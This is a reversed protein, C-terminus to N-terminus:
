SAADGAKRGKLIFLLQEFKAVTFRSGLREISVTGDDYFSGSVYPESMYFTGSRDGDKLRADVGTARMYDAVRALSRGRAAITALLERRKALPARSPEIVRRRIDKVLAAMPRECSMSASPLNWEPGRPLENYPVRADAPETAAVRVKDFGSARWTSNSFYLVLGDPMKIRMPDLSDTGAIVKGGLAKALDGLFAKMDLKRETRGYAVTTEIYTM